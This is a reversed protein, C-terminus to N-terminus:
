RLPKKLNKFTLGAIKVLTNRYLETIAEPAPYAPDGWTIRIDSTDGPVQIFYYINGPHHFSTDPMAKLDAYIKKAESKGIKGKQAYLIDALGTGKYVKGNTLIRYQTVEGSIGGGKGFIPYESQASADPQLFILLTLYPLLRMVNPKCTLKFAIRRWHFNLFYQVIKLSIKYWNKFKDEIFM